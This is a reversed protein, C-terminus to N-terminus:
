KFCPISQGQCYVPACEDDVMGRAGVDQCPAAPEPRWAQLECTGDSGGEDRQGEAGGM